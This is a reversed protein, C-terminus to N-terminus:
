FSKSGFGHLLWAELNRKLKCVEAAKENKQEEMQDLEESKAKMDKLCKKAAMQLAVNKRALEQHTRPNPICNELKYVSDRCRLFNTSVMVADGFTTSVM